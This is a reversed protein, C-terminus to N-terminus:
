KGRDNCGVQQPDCATSTADRGEAAQGFAAASAITTGVVVALAITKLSM